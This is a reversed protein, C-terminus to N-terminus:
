RTRWMWSVGGQLAKPREKTLIPLLTPQGLWCESGARAYAARIDALDFCAFAINGHQCKETKRTGQLNRSGPKDCGKLGAGGQRMGEGM